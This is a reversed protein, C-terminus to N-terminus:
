CVDQHEQLQQLCCYLVSEHFDFPVKNMLVAHLDVVLKGTLIHALRLYVAVHTKVGLGWM